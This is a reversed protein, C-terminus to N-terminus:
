PDCPMVQFAEALCGFELSDIAGCRPLNALDANENVEALPIARAMARCYNGFGSVWAAGSGRPVRTTEIM